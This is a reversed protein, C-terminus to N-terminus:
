FSLSRVGINYIDYRLNKTKELEDVIQELLSSKIRRYTEPEYKANGIAYSLNKINFNFMGERINEINHSFYVDSSNLSNDVEFARNLNTSYYVNIGFSSNWVINGGFINNSDRPWFSYSCFKSHVYASGRYCDRLEVLLMSEIVNIMKGESVEMSLFAINRLIHSLYDLDMKINELEKKLQIKKVDNTALTERLFKSLNISMEQAKEPNSITLSSISNLANFIFHPNIQYKL